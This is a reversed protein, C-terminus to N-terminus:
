RVDAANCAVSRPSTGALAACAADALAEPTDGVDLTLVDDPSELTAFQSDLLAPNMYHGTRSELRGAILERAGVLHVFRLTPLNDRLRERYVSKLASCALVLPAGQAAAARLRANLAALWPQRDVDDLPIGARMKAVNAPPHFDDADVFLAGLRQAILMGVTTKGVGTVGMVVVQM